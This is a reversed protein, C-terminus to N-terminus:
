IENNNVGEQLFKIYNFLKNWDGNKAIWKALIDGDIHSVTIIGNDLVINLEASGKEQIMTIEKTQYQSLQRYRMGGFLNVTYTLSQKNEGKNKLYDVFGKYEEQMSEGYCKSWAEIIEELTYQM